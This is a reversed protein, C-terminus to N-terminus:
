EGNMRFSVPRLVVLLACSLIISAFFVRYRRELAEEVTKRQFEALLADGRYCFTMITVYIM